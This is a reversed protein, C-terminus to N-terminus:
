GRWGIISAACDSVALANRTRAYSSPNVAKLRALAALRTPEFQQLATPIGYLDATPNADFLM